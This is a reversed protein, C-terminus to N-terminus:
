GVVVEDNFQRYLHATFLAYFPLALLTLPTFLFALFLLALAILTMVIAPLLNRGIAIVSARVAEIAGYGRDLVYLHALQVLFAVILGPFIFLLLGTFVLIGQLLVVRIYRGIYQGTLMDAFTPTQGLTSRLAARYVGITALFSLILFVLTILGTLVLAGTSGSLCAELEEPTPAEACGLWQAAVPETVYPQVFRLATVVAALALFALFNRRFTDFAWQLARAPSKSVPVCRLL